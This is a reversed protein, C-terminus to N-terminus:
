NLFKLVENAANSSAGEPGLSSKLGSLKNRMESLVAPSQLIKLCEGAIKKPRAGFQIFEPVIKEGAVINVLGIYSIRILLRAILWTIFSVKYVLAMPVKLMATELTATGSAVLAFDACSVADHRKQSIINIKLNSKKLIKEYISDSIIPSKILIFQTDGNVSRLRCCTKLMIPLVKAVETKRSGPLLAIIKGQPNLGFHKLANEKSMSTKVTEVLPHGVFSVNMSHKEYLTKEFKFFVLMKDVVSKLIEIRGQDWAWVQPSIYYIVPINIKKALKAFPINFGPYDVLIVADPKEYILKSALDVAIKKYLALKNIVESFGIVSIRGINYYLVAGAAKMLEGGMGLFRINQNKSLIAKILNAAHFDGSPEGAIIFLKKYM